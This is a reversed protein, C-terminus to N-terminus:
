AGQMVLRILDPLSGAGTRKMVAARHTEVTRQSINLRAAIEKNPQGEVVLDMVERERKTLTALSVVATERLKAGEISDSSQLLARSISVLLAGQEAPKEIFDMAGAKMAKIATAVDGHGTIVVSPLSRGDLKLQTLLDLGSVGPMMSDVLLCGKRGPGYAAMFSDASAHTEVLHGELELMERMADLLAVDDDVIFVTPATDWRSRGAKDIASVSKAVRKTEPGQAIAAATLLDEVLRALVDVDVPKQLYGCDSALVKRLVDNSIDGTLVVGPIPRNLAKRLDRIIELGTRGGPLNYDAVIADPNAVGRVILDTAEIGDAATYTQYGGGEFLQAMMERVGPDDEIILLHESRKGTSAYKGMEPADARKMKADGMPVEVSFMSGRGATSHVDIRHGLLEGVREVISLGLGLGLGRERAPNGLQHYEEFVSKLQSAPIGIGTDWVEMRVKNGVRRCGVLIKGHKTYKVANSLLNRIMQALLLPDSRVKLSSDVVRLALGKAKSLYTFETKLLHMVSKVPFDEIEPQVTGAELQNIDLLTDLIGTMARLTENLKGILVLPEAATVKRALIGQLLSLTQLPQRLDHSAAALFRSKGLNAKEAKAKAVELAESISKRETIDDLSVLIRLGLGDTVRIKRSSALLVRRGLPPLDLSIEYNEIPAGESLARELFTVAAPVALRGGGVATLPKGVVTQPQERVMRCFSSNGTIVKLSEDVVVLPQDVTDIVSDAYTRAANIELEAAKMESVNSFTLVIGQAIGARTRYPLVRRIYWDGGHARIERNAPVFTKLVSEFDEVLSPDDFRRTLDGIPRGIDSEITNLLAMAAPSFFRIRLDPDLFVVALESSRVINELDDATARQQNVTATLQSNVATLEENLSHLEEKSTELEENTSQYEENLSQAEENIAEHDASSAELERQTQRLEGQIAEIANELEAIKTMDQPDVPRQQTGADPAKPIDIFSVLFLERDGNQVPRVEVRVDVTAGSRKVTGIATATANGDARATQLASRLKERLGQRVMSLLDHGANGSPVQLYNDTAGYYYLGEDKQTILVSAPAFSTLLLQQSLEGIDIERGAAPRVARPWFARAESSTIQQSFKRGGGGTSRFIRLEPSIAQFEGRMAGVNEAVGLLLVGDKRLAFHLLSLVRQQVDALLYILLNRCSVFDLRAFPPNTLVDQVTFIVTERLSATIRYDDGDKVFFRELRAPSVEAAVSAPYYGSRASHVAQEDIDSGFIQLKISKKSAAIEELFVMALSYVEEGSSCAPVWVRLARNAPHELVMERIVTTSLMEFVAADRFFSTVHILLDGALADVERPDENLMDTYAAIDDIARIAMRRKIRRMLTGPKYAAFDKANHARLLEIIRGLKVSSDGTEVVADNFEPGRVQHAYRILSAPIKKLPLILDVVGTQIANQPMGKYAAEAPDQAIVFGGRAKIAKLGVSGDAGNGSLVIGIAREGLAEALSRLLFDFPMRSGHREKPESVMLTNFRVALSRGPPIVYVTDPRLEVGDVAESIPMTTHPALLGVMMSKHTPDLHQVLIFAMGPHPPVNQLFKTFAELGGASAGVAVV